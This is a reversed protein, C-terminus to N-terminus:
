GAGGEGGARAEGAAWPPPYWAPTTHPGVRELEAGVEPGEAPLAPTVFCPSPGQLSELVGYLARAGPPVGAMDAAASRNHRLAPDVFGAASSDDVAGLRMGQSVLFSRVGASWGGPDGMVGEFPTVVVAMGASHELILRNYREWLAVGFALDLGHRSHLSRAVELPHRYVVVAVVRPGLAARWFPLLVSTRPDKWVWPVSRHVRRFARRAQAGTTTVAAAVPAYAAGAPPPAWWRCGMQALLADNLHMLTRSEFHGNPNWPGRVMDGPVCTAPGLLNVLRTAASTGSRHMGVMLVGRPGRM